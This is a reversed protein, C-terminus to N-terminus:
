FTPKCDFSSISLRYTTTVTQTVVRGGPRPRRAYTILEEAIRRPLVAVLHDSAALIRVASLFPARLGIRRALKKRSLADDIFDTALHV